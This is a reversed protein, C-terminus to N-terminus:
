NRLKGLNLKNILLISIIISVSNNLSNFSYWLCSTTECSHSLIIEGEQAFLVHSFLKSLYASSMTVRM